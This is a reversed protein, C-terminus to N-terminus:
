LFRQTGSNLNKDPRLVETELGGDDSSETTNLAKKEESNLNELDFSTRSTKKAIPLPESRVQAFISGGIVVFVLGLYNLFPSAPVQAKM